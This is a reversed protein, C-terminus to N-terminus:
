AVTAGDAVNCPRCSTLEIDSQRDANENDDVDGREDDRDEAQVSGVPHLAGLLALHTEVRARLQRDDGTQAPGEQEDVLRHPLRGRLVCGDDEKAQVADHDQPGHDEVAVGQGGDLGAVM